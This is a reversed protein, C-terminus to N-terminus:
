LLTNGAVEFHLNHSQDALGCAIMSEKRLAEVKHVASNPRARFQTAFNDATCGCFQAHDSRVHQFHRRCAGTGIGASADVM